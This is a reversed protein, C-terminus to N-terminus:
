KYAAEDVDLFQFFEQRYSEALAHFQKMRCKGEAVEEGAEVARRVTAWEQRLEPPLCLSEDDWGTVKIPVFDMQRTERDFGLVRFWYKHDRTAVGNVKNKEPFYRASFVVTRNLTRDPESKKLLLSMGNSYARADISPSIDLYDMFTPVYDVHSGFAPHQQYQEMNEGPLCIFSPLLIKENWWSSERQGHGKEGHEGEMNGHDSTFFLISKGDLLDAARLMDVVRHRDEDKQRVIRNSYERSDGEPDREWYNGPLPDPLPRKHVILFLIFPKQDEKRRNVFEQAKELFGYNDTMSDFEDLNNYLNRNPYNWASSAVVGGTVYGNQKLLKIAYSPIHRVAFTHYHYAHAGYLLAFQAMESVHGSGAHIQPSICKNDEVFKMLHPSRIHTADDHRMSEATYIIVNKKLRVTAEIQQEDVLPYGAGPLPPFAGDNTRPLTPILKDVPNPDIWNFPLQGRYHEVDEYILVTQNIVLLGTISIILGVTLCLRRVQQRSLRRKILQAMLFCAAQGLFLLVVVLKIYPWHDPDIGAGLERQRQLVQKIGLIEVLDLDILHVSMDVLLRCELVYLALLIIEVVALIFVSVYLGISSRECGKVVSRVWAPTHPSSLLLLSFFQLFAHCSHLSLHLVAWSMVGTSLCHFVMYNFYGLHHMLYQPYNNKHLEPDYNNIITSLSYAYILIQVVANILAMIFTTSRSNAMLVGAVRDCFKSGPSALFWDTAPQGKPHLPAEGSQAEVDGRLGKEETESKGGNDHRRKVLRENSETIM